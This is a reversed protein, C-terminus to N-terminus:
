VNYIDSKYGARNKSDRFWDITAALGEDIGTAPSWGTLERLRKASGLLREVESQTPRLRQEDTLIKAEPQILAIIKEALDGISIEEETAINVEEGITQECAAI